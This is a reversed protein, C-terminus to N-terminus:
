DFSLRYELSIGHGPVLRTVSQAQGRIADWLSTKERERVVTPKGTIGGLEAARDIAERLTGLKDVFGIEKAQRGTLIRGDAKSRLYERVAEDSPPAKKEGSLASALAELAQGAPLTPSSARAQERLLSQGLADKRTAMIADLFQEYADDITGQLLARDEDTMERHMSGIDKFKGSKITNVSVGIKKTVGEVDYTQFIVGVSGTLSGPNAFVEDAACAIYYGGSAATNGMSAVIPKKHKERARVIESYLEQSGAVTGGPSEIRVVIANVSSNEAYKRIQRIEGSTDRIVGNVTVLAVSNRGIVPMRDGTSLIAVVAVVVLFFVFMLLLVALLSAVSKTKMSIKDGSRAGAINLPLGGREEGVPYGTSALGGSQICVFDATGFGASVM